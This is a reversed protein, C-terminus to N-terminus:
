LGATNRSVSGNLQPLRHQVNLEDPVVSFRQFVLAHPGFRYASKRDEFFQLDYWYITLNVNLGKISVDLWEYQVKAAPRRSLIEDFQALAAKCAEVDSHSHLRFSCSSIAVPAIGTLRTLHGAPLYWVDDESISM